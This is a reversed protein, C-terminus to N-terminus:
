PFRHLCLIPRGLMLQPAALLSIPRCGEKKRNKEQRELGLRKEDAEKAHECRILGSALQEQDFVFM